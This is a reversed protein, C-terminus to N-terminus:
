DYDYDRYDPYQVFDDNYEDALMELYDKYDKDDWVLDDFAWSYLVKLFEKKTKANNLEERLESLAEAKESESEYDATSNEEYWDVFQDITWDQGETIYDYVTEITDFDEPELLEDWEVSAGDSSKDSYKSLYEWESLVEENLYFKKM